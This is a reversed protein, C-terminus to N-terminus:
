QQPDEPEEDEAEDNGKDVLIFSKVKLFVVGEDDESVVGIVEVTKGDFEYLQKGMDDDKILYETTLIEIDGQEDEEEIDFVLAAGIVNGDDDWDNGKIMGTITEDDQAILNTVSLCLFSILTLVSLMKFRQM